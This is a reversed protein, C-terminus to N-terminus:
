IAQGDHVLDLENGQAGWSFQFLLNATIDDGEGGGIGIAKRSLEAFFELDFRLYDIGGQAKFFLVCGFEDGDKDFRKGVLDEGEGDALGGEFVNEDAEGAMPESSISDNLFQAM